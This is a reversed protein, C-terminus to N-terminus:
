DLMTDDEPEYGLWRVRFKWENPNKETVSHGLFKEVYFEDLDTALTEINEKPMDKPYKFSRIRNAHVM